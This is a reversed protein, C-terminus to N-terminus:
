LRRWVEHLGVNSADRAWLSPSELFEHVPAERNRRGREHVSTEGGRPGARLVPTEGGPAWRTFQPKAERPGGRSSPNRRGPGLEYFQPKAERPGGRSSPNRRPSPGHCLKRRLMLPATFRPGAADQMSDEACALARRTSSSRVHPATERM